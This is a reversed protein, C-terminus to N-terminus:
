LEEVSRLRPLGAGKSVMASISAIQQSEDRHSASVSEFSQPEERRAIRVKKSAPQRYRSPSLSLSADRRKAPPLDPKLGADM